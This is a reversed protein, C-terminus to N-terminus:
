FIKFIKKKLYYLKSLFFHNRVCIGSNNKAGFPCQDYCVAGYALKSDSCEQCITNNTCRVCFDDFTRCALKTTFVLFHFYFIVLAFDKM